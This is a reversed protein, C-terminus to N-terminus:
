TLHLLGLVTLWFCCWVCGTWGHCRPEWGGPSFREGERKYMVGKGWQVTGAKLKMNINLCISWVFLASCMQNASVRRGQATVGDVFWNTLNNLFLRWPGEEEAFLEWDRLSYVILLPLKKRMHNNSYQSFFALWCCNTLDTHQTTHKHPSSLLRNNKGWGMLVTCDRKM